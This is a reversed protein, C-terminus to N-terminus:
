LLKGVKRCNECIYYAFGDDGTKTENYSHGLAECEQQIGILAPVYVDNFYEKKIGHIELATKSRNEITANIDFERKLSQLNLFKEKIISM